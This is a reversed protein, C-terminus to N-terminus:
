RRFDLFFIVFYIYHTKLTCDTYLKRDKSTDCSVIPANRSISFRLDCIPNFSIFSFFIITHGVCKNKRKNFNLFSNRLIWYKRVDM